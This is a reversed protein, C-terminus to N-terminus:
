CPIPRSRRCLAHHCSWWTLRCRSRRLRRDASPRTGLSLEAPYSTTPESPASDVADGPLAMARTPREDSLRRLHAALRATRDRVAGGHSRIAHVRRRHRCFGASPSTCTGSSGTTRRAGVAPVANGVRDRRGRPLDGRLYQHVPQVTSGVAMGASQGNASIARGARLRDTVRDRLRERRRHRYAVIATLSDAVVGTSICTSRARRSRRAASCRVRSTGPGSCRNTGASCRRRRSRSADRRRVDADRDGVVASPAVRRDMWRAMVVGAFAFAVVTTIIPIFHVATRM